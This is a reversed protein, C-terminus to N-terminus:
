DPRLHVANITEAHWSDATPPYGWGLVVTYHSTRRAPCPPCSCHGQNVIGCVASGCM